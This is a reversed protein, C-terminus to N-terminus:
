GTGHTWQASHPCTVGTVIEGTASTISFEAEALEARLATSAADM